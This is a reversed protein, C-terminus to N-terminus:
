VQKEQCTAQYFVVVVNSRFCVTFENTHIRSSLSSTEDNKALSAICRHCAVKDNKDALDFLFYSLGDVSFM